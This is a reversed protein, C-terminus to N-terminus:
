RSCSEFAFNPRAEICFARLRVQGEIMEQVPIRLRDVLSDDGNDRVV